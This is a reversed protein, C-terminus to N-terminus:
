EQVGGKETTDNFVPIFSCRCNPHELASAYSMLRDYYDKSFMRVVYNEYRFMANHRKLYWVIFKEILKKM